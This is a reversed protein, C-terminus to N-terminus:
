SCTTCTLPNLAGFAKPFNGVGAIVQKESIAERVRQLATSAPHDAPLEQRQVM